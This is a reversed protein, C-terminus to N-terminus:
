TDKTIVTADSNEDLSSTSTSVSEDANPYAGPQEKVGANTTKKMQNVFKPLMSKNARISDLTGEILTLENSCRRLSSSVNQVMKQSKVLQQTIAAIEKTANNYPLCAINLLEQKLQENKERLKRHLLSDYKPSDSEAFR